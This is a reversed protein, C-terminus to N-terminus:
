SIRWRVLSYTNSWASLAFFPVKYNSIKGFGCKWGWMWWASLPDFAELPEACSEGTCQTLIQRGVKSSQPFHKEGWRCGDKQVLLMWTSCWEHMHLRSFGWNKLVVLLLLHQFFIGEGLGPFFNATKTHSIHPYGPGTLKSRCEATVPFYILLWSVFSVSTAAIARQKVAKPLVM